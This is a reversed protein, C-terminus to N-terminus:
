EEYTLKHGWHLKSRLIEYYDYDLPHILHLHEQAKQITLFPADPTKGNNADNGDTSVYLTIANANITLSTIISLSLLLIRNM